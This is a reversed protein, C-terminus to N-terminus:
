VIRAYLSHDVVTYGDYAGMDEAKQLDARILKATPRAAKAAELNKTWQNVLMFKTDEGPPDTTFAADNAFFVAHQAGPFVNNIRMRTANDESKTEFVVAKIAQPGFVKKASSIMNDYQRHADATQQPGNYYRSNRVIAGVKLDACIGLAEELTLMPDEPNIAKLQQSTHTTFEFAKGPATANARNSVFLVQDKSEYVAMEIVQAGRSVAGRMAKAASAVDKDALWSAMNAAAKLPEPFWGVEPEPAAGITRPYLKYVDTDGTITVAIWYTSPDVSVLYYGDPIHFDVPGPQIVRSFEKEGPFAMRRIIRYEQAVGTIHAM